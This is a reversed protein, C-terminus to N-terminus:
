HSCWPRSKAAGKVLALPPRNSNRALKIELLFQQRYGEEDTIFDEYDNIYNTVESAFDSIDADPVEIGAKKLLEKFRVLWHEFIGDDNGGDSGDSDDFRLANNCNMKAYEM